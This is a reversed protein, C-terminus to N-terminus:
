QLPDSSLLQTFTSTATRPEGGRVTRVTEKSTFCCQVQIDASSLLHTHFDLHGDQPPSGTGLLGLCNRDRHDYLLASSSRLSHGLKRGMENDRPREKKREHREVDVSVVLSLIQSPSGLIAVEDKVCNRFEASM